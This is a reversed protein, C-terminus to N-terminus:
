ADFAGAMPSSGSGAAWSSLDQSRLAETPAAAVLSPCRPASAKGRECFARGVRLRRFPQHAPTVSGPLTKTM